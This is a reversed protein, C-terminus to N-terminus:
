GRLYLIPDFMADFVVITKFKKSSFFFVFIINKCDMLSKFMVHIRESQTFYTKIM